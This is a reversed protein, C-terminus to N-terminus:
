LHCYIVCLPAFGMHGGFVMFFYPQKWVPNVLVSMEIEILKNRHAFSHDPLKQAGNKKKKKRVTTSYMVSLLSLSRQHYRPPGYFWLINSNSLVKFTMWDWAGTM